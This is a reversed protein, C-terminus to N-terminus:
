KGIWLTHDDSVPWATLSAGVDFCAAFTKDNIQDQTLLRATWKRNNCAVVGGGVLRSVQDVKPFLYSLLDGTCAVWHLQKTGAASELWDTMCLYDFAQGGFGAEYLVINLAVFYVVEAQENIYKGWQAPYRPTPFLKKNKTMLKQQEETLHLRPMFKWEHGVLAQLVIEDKRNVVASASSSSSSVSGSTSSSSSSLSSSSMSTSSCSSALHTSTHTILSM